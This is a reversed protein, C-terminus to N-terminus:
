TIKSNLKKSGVKNVKKIQSNLIAQLSKEANSFNGNNIEYVKPSPGATQIHEKRKALNSGKISPNRQTSCIETMASVGSHSKKHPIFSSSISHVDSNNVIKIRRPNQIKNTTVKMVSTQPNTGAHQGPVNSQKVLINPSAASTRAVM